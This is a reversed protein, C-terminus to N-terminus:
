KKSVTSCADLSQQIDQKIDEIHELGVSMRVMDESVGLDVKEKPYMPKHTSSWPHTAASKADGFSAMHTILKFGDVLSEGVVAGGRVGFLIVAGAGRPLYKTAALYKPHNELGPYDVWSISPHGCLWVALETANRTHRECRLSLTELRILLDRSNYPSLCAGSDCLIQHRFRNVFALKGFSEHFNVNHFGPSPQNLRAFRPSRWDFRGSDIVVGGVSTGHGCIWKSASHIVIDAGHLIPHATAEIDPVNMRPHGMRELYIVRTTEKITAEITGPTEQVIDVLIGLDPLLFSFQNYVGHYM